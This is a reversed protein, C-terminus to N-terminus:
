DLEEVALRVTVQHRACEDTLLCYHDLNRSLRAPDAVYFATIARSRVLERVQQLAPRDLTLSSVGHDVCVYASPVVCGDQTALTQCAAIQAALAEGTVQDATAVRVYIAYQPGHTPTSM